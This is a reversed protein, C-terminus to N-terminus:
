AQTRWCMIFTALNTMVGRVNTHFDAAAAHNATDTVGRLELFPLANFLSARAGGAGEWAVAVAGTVEHLAKARDSTIIDEDGSAVIGYHVCFGCASMQVHRLRAIAEPCGDFRPAPRGSFKRHFDHEITSTAVVIDGVSVGEALGGAAGACLVMELAHSHEILHQTQLAFQAKGHGGCALSPRLRGAGVCDRWVHLDPFTVAPLRGIGGRVARLGLREWAQVLLDVEAQLPTVILVTMPTNSM